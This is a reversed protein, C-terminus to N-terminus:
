RVLLRGIRRFLGPKQTPDSRAAPLRSDAKSERPELVLRGSTARPAVALASAPAETAMDLAMDAEAMLTTAATQPASTAVQASSSDTAVIAQPEDAMNEAEAEFVGDSGQGGMAWEEEGSTEKSPVRHNVDEIPEPDPSVRARVDLSRRTSPRLTSAPSQGPSSSHGEGQCADRRELRLSVLEAEAAEARKSAAMAAVASLQASQLADGLAASTESLANEARARAVQEELYCARKRAREGESAQQNAELEHTRAEFAQARVTASALELVLQECRAESAAAAEAAVAAAAVAAAKSTFAAEARLEAAERKLAERQLKEEASPWASRPPPLPAAEVLARAEAQAEAQALAAAGKAREEALLAERQLRVGVVAAEGQARAAAVMAASKASEGALRKVHGQVEAQSDHLAVEVQIRKQVAAHHANSLSAISAEAASLEDTLLANSVKLLGRVSKLEAMTKKLQTRMGGLISLLTAKEASAPTVMVPMPAPAPPARSASPESAASPAVAMAIHNAPHAPPQPQQSEETYVRLAAIGPKTVTLLSEPQQPQPLPPPPPLPLESYAKLAALGPKIARRSLQQQPSLVVTATSACSRSCPPGCVTFHFHPGQSETGPISGFCVLDGHKLEVAHEPLIRTGNVFSGNASSNDTLSWRKSVLSYSLRAHLRSAKSQVDGDDLWVDSRERWRGVWAVESNADLRHDVGGGMSQLLWVSDAKNVFPEPPIPSLPQRSSVPKFASPRPHLSKKQGIVADTSQRTPQMWLYM